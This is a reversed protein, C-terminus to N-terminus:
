HVHIQEKISLLYKAKLDIPLTHVINILIRMVRKLYYPSYENLCTDLINLRENLDLESLSFQDPRALYKVDLMLEREDCYDVIDKLEHWNSKMVLFHLTLAIKQERTSNYAIMKDFNKLVVNLKGPYRIQHYLKEDLSDISYIIEKIIIKDLDSKIKDNFTWHGNTTFSWVCKPNVASVEHILRYTDSQIFPEGSLLEMEIIYPFFNEKLEDWFNIKDYFGNEMTWVHCMECRLNCQGNFNATIKLPMKEQHLDFSANKFFFYSSTSLNCKNNEVEKKCISVNGELFEKRWKKMYDNNWIEGVSNKTLDGVFHDTGKHRCVSVRGGPNFILNVFPVVCFNKPLSLSEFEELISKPVQYFSNSM